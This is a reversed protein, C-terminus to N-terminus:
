GVKRDLGDRHPHQPIRVRLTAGRRPSAGRDDRETLSIVGELSEVIQRALALGIGYGNERTTVGHRFANEGRAAPAIGAGDDSIELVVEERVGDIRASVDIVGGPNLTDHEAAQGISQVGNMLGNLVVTYMPGAPATGAEPEITLNMQVGREAAFPRVVDMAHDIAMGMSIADSVGLLSSGIPVSRSRLAANVMSSMRELTGHVLMIQERAALLKHAEAEVEDQPLAAAAIGLWRMSGDLMNRLEHAVVTLRDATLPGSSPDEPRHVGPPRITQRRPTEDGTGHPNPTTHDSMVELISASDRNTVGPTAGARCAARGPGNRGRSVRCGHPM